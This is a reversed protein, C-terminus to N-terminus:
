FHTMFHLPTSLKLDRQFMVGFAYLDSAFSYRANPDHAKMEPAMYAPAGLGRARIYDCGPLLEKSFGYDIIAITYNGDKENIILNAPKLDAHVIRKTQLARLAECCAIAIKIKEFQSM